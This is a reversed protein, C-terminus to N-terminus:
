AFEHHSMPSSNLVNYTNSNAMITFKSKYSKGRDSIIRKGLGMM